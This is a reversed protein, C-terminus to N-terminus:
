AAIGAASATRRAIQLLHEAYKSASHRGASLRVLLRVTDRRRIRTDFSASARRRGAAYEACFRRYWTCNREAAVRICGGENVQRRCPVLVVVLRSSELEALMVKLGRAEVANARLLSM